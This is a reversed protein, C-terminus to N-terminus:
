ANSDRFGSSEMKVWSLVEGFGGKSSEGHQLTDPCRSQRHRRKSVVHGKAAHLLHFAVAVVLCPVPRLLRGRM